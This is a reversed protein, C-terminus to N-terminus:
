RDPHLRKAQNRYQRTLEATSASPDAGLTAFAGTHQLRDVEDSLEDRVSCLHSLYREVRSNYEKISMGHPLSPPVIPRVAPAGPAAAGAASAAPSADTRPPLLAADTLKLDYELCTRVAAEALADNVAESGGGEDGDTGSGLLERGSGARPLAFLAPHSTEWCHRVLEFQVHMAVHEHLRGGPRMPHTALCARKFELNAEEATLGSLAKRLSALSHAGAAAARQEEVDAGTVWALAARMAVEPPLSFVTAWLGAAVPPAKASVTLPSLPVGGVAAGVPGGLIDETQGYLRVADVLERRERHEAGVCSEVADLVERLALEGSLEGHYWRVIPLRSVGTRALGTARQTGPPDARVSGEFDYERRGGTQLSGLPNTNRRAGEFIVVSSGNRNLPPVTAM